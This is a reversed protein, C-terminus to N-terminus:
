DQVAKAGIMEGTTIWDAGCGLAGIADANKPDVNLDSWGWSV